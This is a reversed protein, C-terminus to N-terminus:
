ESILNYNIQFEYLGLHGVCVYQVWGSKVM